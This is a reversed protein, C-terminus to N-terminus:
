PNVCGNEILVERLDLLNLDVSESSFIVLHIVYFEGSQQINVASNNPLQEPFIEIAKVADDGCYVFHWEKEFSPKELHSFRRIGAGEVWAISTYKQTADASKIRDIHWFGFKDRLAYVLALNGENTRTRFVSFEDGNGDISRQEIYSIAETDLDACYVAISFSCSSWVIISTALLIVLIGVCIAITKAKKM